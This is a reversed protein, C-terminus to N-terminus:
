SQEEASTAGLQSTVGELAHKQFPPLSPWKATATQNETEQVEVRIVNFGAERFCEGLYVALVETSPPQFLDPLVDNLVAHDLHPELNDKWWRGVEGMDVVVGDAKVPGAVTIWAVYSHGHTRECVGYGPLRHAAEWRVRRTVEVWSTSLQTPSPAGSM